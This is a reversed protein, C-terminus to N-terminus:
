RSKAILEVRNLLGLRTIVYMHDLIDTPPYTRWLPDLIYQLLYVRKM